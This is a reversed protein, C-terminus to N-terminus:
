GDGDLVARLAAAAKDRKIIRVVERGDAYKAPLDWEDALARVRTIARENARLAALVNDYAAICAEQHALGGAHRAAQRTEECCEETHGTAANELWWDRWEVHTRRSDEITAIVAALDSMTVGQESM